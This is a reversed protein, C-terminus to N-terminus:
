LNKPYEFFKLVGCSEKIESWSSISLEICVVGCTPINDIRLNALANAFYTMGPNHGFLMATRFKDDTNSVINFLSMTGAEYIDNEYQIEDPSYSLVDAIVQATKSARNAPSSIIIDPRVEITKLFNAMVPADRKGRKNLPRDFDALDPFKWSSKAHRILYLIKLKEKPNLFEVM